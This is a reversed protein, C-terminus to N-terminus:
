RCDTAVSAAWVWGVAPTDIAVWRGERRTSTIEVGDDLTAVVAASASPAARVNLPPDPDRVTQQCAARPLETACDDIFNADFV